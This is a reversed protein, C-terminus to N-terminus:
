PLPPPRRAHFIAFLTLATGAARAAGIGLLVGLRSHNYFTSRPGASRYLDDLYGTVFPQGLTLAILLLMAVLTILAPSPCSRWRALAIIIGGVYVLTPPVIAPLDRIYSVLTVHGIVLQFSFM